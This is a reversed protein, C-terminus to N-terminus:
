ICLPSLPSSVKGEVGGRALWFLDGRKHLELEVWMLRSLDTM